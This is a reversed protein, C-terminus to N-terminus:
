DLLFAAMWSAMWLGVFRWFWVVWGQGPQEYDDIWFSAKRPIFRAEERRRWSELLYPNARALCYVAAGAMSGVLLSWIVTLLSAPTPKSLWTFSGFCLCATIAGIWADYSESM